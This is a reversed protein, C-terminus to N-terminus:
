RVKFELESGDTDGTDIEKFADSVTTTIVNEKPAIDEAEIAIEKETEEEEEFYESATNQIIMNEKPPKEFKKPLIIVHKNQEHALIKRYSLENIM